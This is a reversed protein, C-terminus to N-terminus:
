YDDVHELHDVFDTFSTYPLEVKDPTDEVAGFPSWIGIYYRRPHKIRMVATKNALTEAFILFNGDSQDSIDQYGGVLSCIPPNESPEAISFWQKIVHDTGKLACAESWGGNKFLLFNKYDEPLMFDLITEADKIQAATIKPGVDEFIINEARM